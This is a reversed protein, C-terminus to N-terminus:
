RGEGASVGGDGSLSIELLSAWPRREAGARAALVRQAERASEVAGARLAIELWIAAHRADGVWGTGVDQLWEAIVAYAAAPLTCGARVELLLASLTADVYVGLRAPDPADTHVARLAGHRLRAAAAQPDREASLHGLLLDEEPGWPSAREVREMFAAALTPLGRQVLAEAVQYTRVPTERDPEGGGAGEDLAKAVAFVAQGVPVGPAAGGPDPPPEAPVFAASADAWGSIRRLVRYVAEASAGAAVTEGGLTGVAGIRGRALEIWGFRGPGFVVLTGPRSWGVASQLVEELPVLRLHFQNPDEVVKPAHPVGVLLEALTPLASEALPLPPSGTRRVIRANGLVGAWAPDATWRDFERGAVVLGWVPGEREQAAALREALGPAGGEDVVLVRAEGVEEAGPEWAEAPVRRVRAVGAVELHFQLEAGLLDLDEPAAVVVVWRRAAAGAEEVALAVAAAIEGTGGTLLPMPRLVLGGSALWAALRDPLGGADGAGWVVWQVGATPKAGATLAAEAADPDLLWIAGRGQPVESEVALRLGRATALAQLEESLPTPSRLPGVYVPNYLPPGPQELLVDLAGRISLRVDAQVLSSAAAPSPHDPM